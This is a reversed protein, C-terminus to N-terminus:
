GLRVTHARVNIQFEITAMAGKVTQEQVFDTPTVYARLVLGGLSPNTKLLSVVAALLQFARDRVPKMKTSGHYSSALCVISYMEEDSHLGAPAETGSATTRQPSFGVVVVDNAIEGENVPQGDLVQVGVLGDAIPLLELLKDTVAPLSRM